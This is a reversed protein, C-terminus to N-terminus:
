AGQNNHRYSYMIAITRRHLKRSEHMTAFACHKEQSTNEICGFCISCAVSYTFTPNYIHEKISISTEHLLLLRDAAASTISPYRSCICIFM